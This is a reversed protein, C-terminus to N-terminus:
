HNRKTRKNSVTTPMKKKKQQQQKKDDDDGEEELNRRKYWSVVQSALEQLTEVVVVDPRILRTQIVV